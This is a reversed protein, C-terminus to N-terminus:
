GPYHKAILASVYEPDHAMRELIASKISAKKEGEEGKEEEEEEEEKPAEGRAKALLAMVKKKKEEEPAGGMAAAEEEVAEKVMEEFVTHALIRGCTDYDEAQKILAEDVEVYEYGGAEAAKEMDAETLAGYVEKLSRM